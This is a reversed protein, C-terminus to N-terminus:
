PTASDALATDHGASPQRAYCPQPQLTLRPTLPNNSANTTNPDVAVRSSGADEAEQGQAATAFLFLSM